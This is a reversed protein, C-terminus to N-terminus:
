GKLRAELEAIRALAAEHANREESRQRLADARQRLAEHIPPIRDGTRANRMVMEIRDYSIEAELVDSRYVGARSPAIRMYVGRRLRYATLPDRLRGPPDVQWYEHVGLDRYLAPKIDVDRRWTREALGEVVLDPPQGEVWVKYSNRPYRGVGLAITVDPEVAAAPNGEEFLILLNQQVM